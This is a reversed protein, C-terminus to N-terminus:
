QQNCLECTMCERGNHSDFLPPSNSDEELLSGGHTVLRNLKRVAETPPLGGPAVTQRCQPDGNVYKKGGLYAPINEDGIYKRLLTLTDEPTAMEVKAITGPDVLYSFLNWAKVFPAPTRIFLMRIVTEPLLMHRVGSIQALSWAASFQADSWKFGDLDIVLTFGAFYQGRRLADEECAALTRICHVIDIKQLIEMDVTRQLNPWSCRGLRELAVPEGGRGHGIFGGSLWWPALCKEYADLNWTALVNAVDREEQWKISARLRKEAKDLKGKEARLTRVLYPRDVRFSTSDIDRIRDEFQQLMPAEGPRLPQLKMQLAAAPTLPVPPKANPDLPDPRLGTYKFRGFGLKWCTAADEVEAEDFSVQRRMRDTRRLEVDELFDDVKRKSCCCEKLLGAAGAGTAILLVAAALSPLSTVELNAEHGVHQGWQTLSSFMPWLM